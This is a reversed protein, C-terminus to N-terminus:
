GELGAARLAQSRSMFALARRIRDERVEYVWAATTAVEAGSGKGRATISAVAVVVEEGGDIIDVPQIELDGFSRAFSEYWERAGDRGHHEGADPLEPFDVCVCDEAFFELTAEIGGEAYARWGAEILDVNRQAV